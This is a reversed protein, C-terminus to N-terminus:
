RLLNYIRNSEEEDFGQIMVAERIPSIIRATVRVQDNLVIAMHKGVNRMTHNFFIEGGEPTLTFSIIPDGSFINKELQVDKLINRELKIGIRVAVFDPNGHENNRQQGMDFVPLIIVESSVLNQNILEGKENFTSTPNENYFNNFVQTEEDDIIHFYLVGNETIQASIGTIIIFYIIFFAIINKM